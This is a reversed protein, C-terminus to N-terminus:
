SVETRTMSQMTHMKTTGRQDGGVALGRPPQKACQMRLRPM